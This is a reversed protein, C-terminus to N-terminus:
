EVEHTSLTEEDVEMAAPTESPSEESAARSAESVAGSTSVSTSTAAMANEPTSGEVELELRDGEVGKGAMCFYRRFAGCSKCIVMTNLQPEAEIRIEASVYPILVAECRLCISRKISPDIRIVSKRGIERLTSAYFRATGTLQYPHGGDAQGHQHQKRAKHRCQNELAHHAPDQSTQEKAIQVKQQRLQEKRQRRSQKQKGSRGHRSEHLPHTGSATKAPHTDETAKMHIEVATSGASTAESSVNAEQPTSSINTDETRSTNSECTSKTKTIAQFQKRHPDTITAMCMAAQYLFNMRQFIERNAVSGESGKKDKKAMTGAFPGTNTKKFRICSPCFKSWFTRVSMLNEMEPVQPAAPTMPRLRQNKERLDVYSYCAGGLLTMVIGLGNLFGITTNFVTVAVVISLVQKVNAAVTMTLASTKKNATFSVYNLFFAIIGNVLLALVLSVSMETKCFSVMEDLEGKMWSFIVTQVFALPSMRLLLDLPHLQLRGVQIRNTVVTKIAALATGLLTLFFGMATYSYDGVTAMYVGLLLPMLSLYTLTSYRKGLFLISIAITFVPTMARVVQHFAVSVENLSVNSIAINLTYLFSFMLMVMNEHEGLQAPVFYGMRAMVMAGAGSCLTHIGTLTWPYSFRFTSLIAKNYITLTLNLMFYMALWSYSTDVKGAKNVGVPLSLSRPRDKGPM